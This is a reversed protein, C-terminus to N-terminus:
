ALKIIFLQSPDNPNLKEAKGLWQGRDRTVTCLYRHDVRADQPERMSELRFKGEASPRIKWRIKGWLTVDQKVTQVDLRGDAPANALNTFVLIQDGYSLTFYCDTNMDVDSLPKVSQMTWPEAKDQDAPCGLIFMTHGPDRFLTGCIYKDEQSQFKIRLEGAKPQDKLTTVLQVVSQPILGNVFSEQETIMMNVDIILHPGDTFHISPDKNVFVLLTLARVMIAWYNLRHTMMRYYYIYFDHKNLEEENILAFLSQSNQNALYKHMQKVNTYIENTVRRGLETCRDRADTYQLKSDESPELAAIQSMVSIVAWYQESLSDIAGIYSQVLDKKTNLELTKVAKGIETVSTSLIGLDKRFEQIAKRNEPDLQASPGSFISNFVKTTTASVAALGVSKGVEALTIDLLGAIFQAM